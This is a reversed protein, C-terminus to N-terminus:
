LLHSSMLLSQLSAPRHALSHLCSRSAPFPRSVNEGQAEVHFVARCVLNLRRVELVLLIIYKHKHTLCQTQHCLYLIFFWLGWKRPPCVKLPLHTFLCYDTWWSLPESEATALSAPRWIRQQLFNDPVGSLKTIQSEM